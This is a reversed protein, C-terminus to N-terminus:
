KHTEEAIKNNIIKKNFHFQFLNLHSLVGVISRIVLYIFHLYELLKLEIFYLHECCKITSGVHDPGPARECNARM